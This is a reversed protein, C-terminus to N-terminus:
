RKPLSPDSWYLVISTSSLTYARLGNPNPLQSSRGNSNAVVMDESSDLTRMNAYVPIGDGRGNYARLSIVYDSNQRLNKIKFSRRKGDVLKTYVDPIGKGWGAFPISLKLFSTCILCM